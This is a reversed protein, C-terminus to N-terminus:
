LVECLWARPIGKLAVLLVRRVLLCLYMWCGISLCYGILSYAYLLVRMFMLHKYNYVFVLYYGYNGMFYGAFGLKAGFLLRAPREKLAEKIPIKLGKYTNYLSYVYPIVCLIAGLGLIQVFYLSVLGFHAMKGSFQTNEAVKPSDAVITKGTLWM